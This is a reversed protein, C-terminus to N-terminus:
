IIKRSKLILITAVIGAVLLMFVMWFAWCLWTRHREKKKQRVLWSDRHSADATITTVFKFRSSPRGTLSLSLTSINPARFFPRSPSSPFSPNRHMKPTIPPPPHLPKCPKSSPPPPPSNPGLPSPRLLPTTSSSKHLHRTNQEQSASTPTPAAPQAKTATDPAAMVTDPFIPSLPTSLLSLRLLPLQSMPSYGPSSPHNTIHATPPGRPSHTTTITTTTTLSSLSSTSTVYSHKPGQASM